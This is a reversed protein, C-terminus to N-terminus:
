RLNESSQSIKLIARFLLSPRMPLFLFTPHFFDRYEQHTHTCHFSSLHKTTGHQLTCSIHKKEFRFFSKKNKVWQLTIKDIFIHLLFAFLKGLWIFQRGFLNFFRGIIACKENVTMKFKCNKSYYDNHILLLKSNVTM